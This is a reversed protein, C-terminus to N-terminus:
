EWEFRLTTGDAVECVASAGTMAARARLNALGGESSAWAGDPLGVGDDTVRVKLRPEIALHVDVRKAQAHRAANRVAELVMRAVHVMLEGDLAVPRGDVTLTLACRGACLDLCRERLWTVFAETPRENDRLLWVTTRLEDVCGRVREVLAEDAPEAAQARYLLGTLEAGLGDHLDRAIRARERLVELERREADALARAELASRLRLTSQLMTFYTVASFGGLLLSMVADGPQGQVAFATTLAVLAASFLTVNFRIFGGYAGAQGVLVIFVAWFFSRASGSRYVLTLSGLATWVTEARNLLQYARSQFGRRHFALAASLSLAVFGGLAVGADGPKLQLTRQTFEPVDLLWLLFAGLTTTVVSRPARFGAHQEKTHHLLSPPVALRSM